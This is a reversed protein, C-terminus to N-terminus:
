MRYDLLKTYSATVEFHITFKKISAQLILRFILLLSCDISLMYMHVKTQSPSLLYMLNIQPHPTNFRLGFM